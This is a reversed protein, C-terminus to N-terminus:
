NNTQKGTTGTTGGTAGEKGVKSSLNSEIRTKLEDIALTPNFPLSIDINRISARSRLHLQFM